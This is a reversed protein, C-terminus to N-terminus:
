ILQMDFDMVTRSTGPSTRSSSAARAAREPRESCSYRRPRRISSASRGSGSSRTARTRSRFALVPLRSERSRIRTWRSASRRHREDDVCGGDRGGEDVSPRISAPSFLQEAPTPEGSRVQHEDLHRVDEPASDQCPLERGLHGGECMSIEEGESNVEKGVFRKCAPDPLETVVEGRVIGAVNGQCLQQPCWKGGEVPPQDTGCPGM